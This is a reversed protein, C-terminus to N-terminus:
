HMVTLLTTWQLVMATLLQFFMIPIILHPIKRSEFWTNDTLASVFSQMGALTKHTITVDTYIGQAIARGKADYKIYNWQNNNRLNGKQVLVPRNYPDYIIYTPRIRYRKKRYVDWTIMFM